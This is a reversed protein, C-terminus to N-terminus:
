ELLKMQIQKPIGPGNDELDVQVQTNQQTVKVNVIPKSGAHQAANRFLNDFVMPLLRGGAVRLAKAKKSAHVKVTLDKHTKCAQTAVREILAVIEKEAEKDPRGFVDLLRNMREAAARTAVIFEHLESDQPTIMQAVETTSFIVQLDNGLDHRLLSAYLELDRNTHKLEIEALKRDHVDRVLSYLAVVKGNRIVQTSSVEGWVRSGDKTIFPYEHAGVTEGLFLRKSNELAKPLFEPAILNLGPYFKGKLETPHYGLHREVSPSVDILNLNADIHLIVDTLNEFFLRYREESDALAEQALKRDTIDEITGEYYILQGQSNRVARSNLLVWIIQGDLRRFEAEFGRVVGDEAVMREWKRRANPDVYFSSAQKKILAEKDPSGLMKVLASNADLIEGKGPKTRFVGVPVTEFLSRYEVEEKKLKSIDTITAMFHSPNGKEDSLLTALIHIDILRGDTGYRSYEGSFYGKKMLQELIKPGLGDHFVSDMAIKGVVQDNKFAGILKLYAPNAFVVKGALDTIVIGSPCCSLAKEHLNFPADADKTSKKSKSASKTRPM